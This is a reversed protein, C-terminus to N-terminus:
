KLITLYYFTASSNITTMQSNQIQKQNALKGSKGKAASPDESSLHM